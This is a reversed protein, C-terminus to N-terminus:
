PVVERRGVFAESITAQDIHGINSGVPIGRAIRSMKVGLPQLLQKIYLATTEGERNSSTAIIVEQLSEQRLRNVLQALPLDDPGTGELPSLKGGLVFYLGRHKGTREIAIVDQPDEVICISKDRRERDQCIPCEEAESFNNCLKCRRTLERAALLADALAKAQPGAVARMLHMAMREASKPGITPLRSLEEILKQLSKPYGNM